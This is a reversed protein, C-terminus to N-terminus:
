KRKKSMCPPFGLVSPYPSHAFDYLFVLRWNAVAETRQLNSDYASLQRTGVEVGAFVPRCFPGTERLSQVDSDSNMYIGDSEVHM